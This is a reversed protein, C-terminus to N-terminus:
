HVSGGLNAPWKNNQVKQNHKWINAQINLKFNERPKNQLNYYM